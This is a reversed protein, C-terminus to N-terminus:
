KKEDFYIRQQHSWIYNSHVNIPTPFPTLKKTLNRESCQRKQMNFSGFHKAFGWYTISMHPHLVWWFLPWSKLFKVKPGKLCTLAIILLIIPCSLYESLCFIYIYIYIYTHIPLSHLCVIIYIYINALIDNWNIKFVSSDAAETSLSIAHTPRPLPM